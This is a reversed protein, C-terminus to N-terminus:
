ELFYILEINLVPSAYYEKRSYYAKVYAHKFEILEKINEEFVGHTSPYTIM